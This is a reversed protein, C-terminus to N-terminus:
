TGTISTVQLKASVDYSVPPDEGEPMETTVLWLSVTLPAGTMPGTVTLYAASPSPVSATVGEEGAEYVTSADAVFVKDILYARSTSPDDANSVRMTGRVHASDGPQDLLQLAAVVQVESTMSNVFQFRGSIEIGREHIM